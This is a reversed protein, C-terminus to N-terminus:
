TWSLDPWQLNATLFPKHLTIKVDEGHSLENAMSIADGELVLDIDLVPKELMLDRVAGGVLYLREGRSQALKAAKQLINLAGPRYASKWKTLWM